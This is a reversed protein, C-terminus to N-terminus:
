ASLAEQENGDAFPVASMLLYMLEAINHTGTKSYINRLHTRLTSNSISLEIRVGETSKGRSLMVCVRYEARSLRAPNEMSLIPVGPQCVTKATQVRLLADTFLGPARNQWTRTLTESMMNLLAQHHAQPKGVFHFELFDITQDSTALPIVVLETMKRRAHFTELSPDSDNDIMSKFWTSGPRAKDFYPGLVSRAFSRELKNRTGRPSIRDYSIIKTEGQRNRSARSLLGAEAGLNEVLQALAKTLPANGHLCECWQAIAGIMGAETANANLGSFQDANQLFEGM